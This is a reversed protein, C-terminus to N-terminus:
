VMYVSHSRAAPLYNLQKSRNLRLYNHQKDFLIPM